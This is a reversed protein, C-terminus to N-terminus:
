KRYTRIKPHTNGPSRARRGRHRSFGFGHEKVPALVNARLAELGRLSFKIRFQELANRNPEGMLITRFSGSGHRAFQAKRFAFDGRSQLPRLVRTCGSDRCLALHFDDLAYVQGIGRLGRGLLLLLAARGSAPPEFLHAFIGFGGTAAALQQQAVQAVIEVTWAPATIVALGGSAL